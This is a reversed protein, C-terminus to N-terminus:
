LELNPDTIQREDDRIPILTKFTKVLQYKKPIRDQKETFSYNQFFGLKTHDLM